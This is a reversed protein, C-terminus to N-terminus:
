AGFACHRESAPTDVMLTSIGRHALDHAIGSGYILEKTSDLGNFHVMAPAPGDTGEARTYLGPFSTDAFPVELKECNERGLTIGKDFADLMKRYAEQRPAYHRSQMREATLYYVSARRYRAGASLLHGGAFVPM